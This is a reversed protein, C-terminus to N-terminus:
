IFDMGNVMKSLSWHFYDLANYINKKQTLSCQFIAAWITIENMTRNVVWPLGFHLALLMADSRSDFIQGATKCKDASRKERGRHTHLLLNFKLKVKVKVQLINDLKHQSSIFGWESLSRCYQQCLMSSVAEATAHHSHHVVTHKIQKQSDTPGVTSLSCM